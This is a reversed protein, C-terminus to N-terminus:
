ISRSSRRESAVPLSSQGTLRPSQDLVAIELFREAFGRRQRDGTTTATNRQQPRPRHLWMLLSSDHARPRNIQTHANCVGNAPRWHSPRPNRSHAATSRTTLPSRRPPACAEDYSSACAETCPMCALEDFAILVVTSWLLFGIAGHILDSLM